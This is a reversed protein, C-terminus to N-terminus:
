SIILVTAGPATIISVKTVKKRRTMNSSNMVAKGNEGQRRIGRMRVRGAM